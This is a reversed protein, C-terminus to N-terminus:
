TTLAVPIPKNFLIQIPTKYDLRKRPRNNLRVMARHVAQDTITNFDRGKPFYQRILGNTNGNTGREWASYPHAFYFECKLAKAIVQHDALEKGNDATITHVVTQTSILLQQVADAVAEKTRRTVKQILTFGSKRETLSVLAQKHKAGIITDVEWDCSVDM